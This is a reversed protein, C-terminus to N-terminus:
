VFIYTGLTPVSARTVMAHRVCVVSIKRLYTYLIYSIIIIFVIQEFALECYDIRGDMNKYMTKWWLINYVRRM